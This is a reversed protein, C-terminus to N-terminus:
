LNCIKNKHILTRIVSGRTIENCSSMMELRDLDAKTLRITIQLKKVDEPNAKRNM